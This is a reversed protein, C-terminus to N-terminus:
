TLLAFSTHANCESLHFQPKQVHDDYFRVTRQELSVRIGLHMKVAEAKKNGYSHTDPYEAATFRRVSRAPLYRFLFHAGTTVGRSALKERCIRESPRWLFM